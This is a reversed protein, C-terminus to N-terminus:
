RHTLIRWGVFAIGCAFLTNIIQLLEFVPEVPDGMTYFLQM